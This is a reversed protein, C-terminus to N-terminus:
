NKIGGKGRNECYKFVFFVAETKRVFSFDIIGLVLVNKRRLSVYYLSFLSPYIANIKQLFFRLQVSTSRSRNKRFGCFNLYYFRM